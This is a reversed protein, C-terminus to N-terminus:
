SLNHSSFNNLSLRTGALTFMHLIALHINKSSVCLPGISHHIGLSQFLTPNWSTLRQEFPTSSSKSGGRGINNQKALSPIRSGNVFNLQTSSIIMLCLLTSSKVVWLFSPTSWVFIVLILIELTRIKSGQFKGGPLGWYNSRQTSPTAIQCTPLRNQNSLKQAM